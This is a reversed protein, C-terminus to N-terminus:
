PKKEQPDGYGHGVIVMEKGSVTTSEGEAFRMGFEELTMGDSMQGRHM